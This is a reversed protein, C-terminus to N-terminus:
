EGVLIFKVAEKTQRNWDSFRVHHVMAMGAELKERDTNFPTSHIFETVKRSNALPYKALAAKIKENM